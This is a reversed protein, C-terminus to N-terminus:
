IKQKLFNLYYKGTYEGLYEHKGVSNKLFAGWGSVDSRGLLVELSPAITRCHHKSRGGISTYSRSGRAISRMATLM